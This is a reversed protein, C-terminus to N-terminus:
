ESKSKEGPDTQNMEGTNKLPSEGFMNGAADYNCVVIYAGDSCQVIACGVKSTKSWIMQTYHGAAFNNDNMVGGDYQPKESGWSDVAQKPTPAFGSSWYLNEGYKQAWEGDGPRHNLECGTKALQEGWAKSYAALEESWSLPDSNVESRYTNHADLFEQIMDDSIDKGSRKLEKGPIQTIVNYSILNENTPIKNGELGALFNDLENINFYVSGNNNIVPMTISGGEYNDSSKLLETLKLNNNVDSISYEVYNINHGKMYNMSYSCRECGPMTFIEVSPLAFTVSHILAFLLVLFILRYNITRM